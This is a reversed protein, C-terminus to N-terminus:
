KSKEFLLPIPGVSIGSVPMRGKMRHISKPAHVWNDISIMNPATNRVHMTPHNEPNNANLLNFPFPTCFHQSNQIEAANVNTKPMTETKGM